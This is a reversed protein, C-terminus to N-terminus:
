VSLSLIAFNIPYQGIFILSFTQVNMGNQERERNPYGYAGVYRSNLGQVSFRMHYNRILYDVNINSSCFLYLRFLFSMCTLTLLQKIISLQVCYHAYGVNVSMHNQSM